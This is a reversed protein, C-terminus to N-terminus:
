SVDPDRPLHITFLSGEGLRSDVTVQGGHAQSTGSSPWGWARGAWHGSRAKDVRYFRRVAAASAKKSGSGTTRCASRFKM